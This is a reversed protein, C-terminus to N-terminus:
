WATAWLAIALAPAAAITSTAIAGSALAGDGGLQSAMVYTAAATPTASLVVAIRIEEPGFGLLRCLIGALVPLFAVKLLVALTIAMTNGRLPELRLQGGICLLAIAVASNAVSALPRDLLTPIRFDLLSLALGALGSIVLPNTVVSHAMERVGLKGHGLVLTALVNYFSMLLTMVVVASAFATSQKGDPLSYALVPLGIYALNGRFAAQALTGLSKGPVRLLAGLGFGAVCATVTAALLILFLWFTSAGPDGAQAASRFLLAPLAVWFALKNLDAIFGPGLFRIHALLFGLGLLAVIPFVSEIIRM